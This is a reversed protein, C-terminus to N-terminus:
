PTFNGANGRIVFGDSGVLRYTVTGDPAAKALVRTYGADIIDDALSANGLSNALEGPRQIWADSM